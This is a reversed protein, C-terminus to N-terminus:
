EDDFQERLLLLYLDPYDQFLGILWRGIYRRGEHYAMALADVAQDKPFYISSQMLGCEALLRRLFRRGAATEIITKFDTAALIQAQKSALEQNAKLQEQHNLDM